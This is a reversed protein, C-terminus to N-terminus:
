QFNSYWNINDNVRFAIGGFKDTAFSMGLSGFDLNMALGSGAFDRAAQLKEDYTFAAGEEKKVMSMFEDRLDQRSLVASHISYAFESYGMAFRKDEFNSHWGLNAPNIGVCQYDTVFTTAGGRGTATFTSYESQSYSTFGLALSLALFSLKKM